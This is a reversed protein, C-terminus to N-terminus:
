GCRFTRRKRNWQQPFASAPGLGFVWFSAAATCQGVYWASPSAAAGRRRTGVKAYADSASAARLVLVVTSIMGVACCSRLANQSLSAVSAFVFSYSVLTDIKYLPCHANDNM